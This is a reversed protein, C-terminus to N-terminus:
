RHLSCVSETVAPSLTNQTVSLGFMATRGKHVLGDFEETNQEHRLAQTERTTVM